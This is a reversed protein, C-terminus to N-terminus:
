GPMFIFFLLLSSPYCYWTSPNAPHPTRAHTPRIPTQVPSASGSNTPRISRGRNTSPKPPSRKPPLHHQRHRHYWPSVSVSVSVSVSITTGSKVVELSREKTVYRNNDTTPENIQPQRIFRDQNVQFHQISPSTTIQAPQPHVSLPFFFSSLLGARQRPATEQM